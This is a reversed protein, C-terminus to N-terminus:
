LRGDSVALEWEDQLIGYCIIDNLKGNKLKHKRLIGEEIFGNRIYLNKAHENWAFTQLHIKNLALHKFAYELVMSIVEDSYGKGWYEKEGITIYLEAHSNKHSIGLLGAIGIPKGSEKDVITFNVKSIDFLSHNFWAVTKELSTPYDFGTSGSVDVDNIWKTRHQLDQEETLRILSKERDLM